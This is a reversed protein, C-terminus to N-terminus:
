SYFSINQLTQKNTQRNFDIRKLLQNHNSLPSEFNSFETLLKKSIENTDIKELQNSTRRKPEIKNQKVIPNNQYQSLLSNARTHSKSLDDNLAESSLYKIKRLPTSQIKHQHILMDRCKREELALQLKDNVSLNGHSGIININNQSQIDEIVIDPKLSYNNSRNHNKNQDQINQSNFLSEFNIIWCMENDDELYVKQNLISESELSCNIKLIQLNQHLRKQIDLIKLYFKKIIQLMWKPVTGIQKLDSCALIKHFLVQMQQDDQTAQFSPCFTTNQQPTYLTLLCVSSNKEKMWERIQRILDNSIDQVLRPIFQVEFTIDQFTNMDYITLYLQRNQNYSCILQWNIKSLPIINSNSDRLFTTNNSPTLILRVLNQRNKNHEETKSNFRLIDKLHINQLVKIVQVKRLKERFTTKPTNIQTSRSFSQNFNVQIQNKDQKEASCNCSYFQSISSNINQLNKSGSGHISKLEQFSQDVDRKNNNNMSFSRNQNSGVVQLNNKKIFNYNIQAFQSALRKNQAYECEDFESAVEQLVDLRKQDRFRDESSHNQKRVFIKSIKPVKQNNLSYANYNAEIQRRAPDQFNNSKLENLKDLVLQNIM